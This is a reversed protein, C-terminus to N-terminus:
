PYNKMGVVVEAKGVGFAITNIHTTFNIAEKNLASLNKTVTDNLYFTLLKDGCYDDTDTSV